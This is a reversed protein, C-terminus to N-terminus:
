DSSCQENLKTCIQDTISVLTTYVHDAIKLTNPDPISEFSPDKTIAIEIRGNIDSFIADYYQTSDFQLKELDITFRQTSEIVNVLDLKNTEYKLLYDKKM